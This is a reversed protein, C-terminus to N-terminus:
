GFNIKFSVEFSFKKQSYYNPIFYDEVKQKRQLDVGEFGKWALVGFLIFNIISDFQTFIKLCKQMSRYAGSKKSCCCLKKLTFNIILTKTPQQIMMLQTVVYWAKYQYGFSSRSLFFPIYFVWFPVQLYMFYMPTVILETFQALSESDM